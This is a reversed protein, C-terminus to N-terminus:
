VDEMRFLSRVKIDTRAQYAEPRWLQREYPDYVIGTYLLATHGDWGKRQRSRMELMLMGTDQTWDWRAQKTLTVGLRKATKLIETGWLGSLAHKSVRKASALTEEYSLGALMSLCVISCTEARQEVLFVSDPIPRRKVPRKM